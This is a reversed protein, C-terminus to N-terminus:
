RAMVIGQGGKRFVIERGQAAVRRAPGGTIEGGLRIEGPSLLRVHVDADTVDLTMAPVRDLRLTDQLAQMPAGGIGVRAPGTAFIQLTPAEDGSLGLGVDTLRVIVRDADPGPPEPRSTARVLGKWNERDTERACGRWQTGRTGVKLPAGPAARSFRIRPARTSCILQTGTARSEERTRVELYPDYPFMEFEVDFAEDAFRLLVVGPYTATDGQWSISDREFRLVGRAFPDRSAIVRSRIRLMNGFVVSDATAATSVDGLEVVPAYVSGGSMAPKPAPGPMAAGTVLATDGAPTASRATSVGSIATDQGKASSTVPAASQMVSTPRDKAADSVAAARLGQPQPLVFVIMAAGFAASLGLARRLPSTRTPRTMADIRRHLSSATPRLPVFVAGGLPAVRMGAARRAVLLLLEAYRRRDASRALVRTDCDIEVAQRLRGLLWWAPLHWPLLVVLANAVLLLLPDRAALHEHEHQLALMRARPELRLAWRPVLITRPAILSAPGIDDTVLVPHGDVVAREACRAIRRLSLLGTLLRAALVASLALWAVLLPRDWSPSIRASRAIREGTRVLASRTEPLPSEEVAVRPVAAAPAVDAPVRDGPPVDRVVERIQRLDTRMEGTSGMRDTAMSGPAAVATWGSLAACLALGIAPAVRRAGGLSALPRELLAAALAILAGAAISYCIWAAIM